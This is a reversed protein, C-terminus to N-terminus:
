VRGLARPPPPPSLPTSHAGLKAGVQGRLAYDFTTLSTLPGFTLPWHHSLPRPARHCAASSPAHCAGHRSLSPSFGSSIAANMHASHLDCLGSGAGAGACARTPGICLSPISLATLTASSAHLKVEWAWHWVAKSERLRLADVHRQLGDEPTLPM